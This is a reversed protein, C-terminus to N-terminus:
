PFYDVELDVYRTGSAVVQGLRSVQDTQTAVAANPASLGIASLSLRQEAVEVGPSM